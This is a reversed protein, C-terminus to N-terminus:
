EDEDDEIDGDGDADYHSKFINKIDSEGNLFSDLLRKAINLHTLEAIVEGEEDSGENEIFLNIQELAKEIKKKGVFTNVSAQAGHKQVAKTLQKQKMQPKSSEHKEKDEKVKEVNAKAKEVNKDAKDQDEEKGMLRAASAVAETSEVKDSAKDLKKDLTQKQEQWTKEAEEIGTRLLKVRMEKDNVKALDLAVRLGVQGKSYAKFCETDLGSLTDMQLLWQTSRGTIALIKEDNYGQERWYKVLAASANDGIQKATDNQRWATAWAEEDTMEKHVHCNVHSLELRDACRYRREGDVLQLIKSGNELTKWRLELPNRIGREEIDACLKDMEEDEFGEGVLIQEEENDTQYFHRPNMFGSDDIQDALHIENLPVNYVDEYLHELNLESM